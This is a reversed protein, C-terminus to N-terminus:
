CYLFEFRLAKRVPKMHNEVFLPIDKRKQGPIPSGAPNFPMRLHTKMHREQRNHGRTETIGDAKALLRQAAQLLGRGDCRNEDESLRTKDPKNGRDQGWRLREYRQVM